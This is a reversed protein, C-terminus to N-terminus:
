GELRNMPCNQCRSDIEDSDENDQTYRCYDACMMEKIAQLDKKNIEIKKNNHSESYWKQWREYHSLELYDNLTSLEKETFREPNNMKAVFSNHTIGLVRHIDKLYYGQSVIRRKLESDRIAKVPHKKSWRSDKGNYGYEPVYSRNKLIHKKEKAYGEEKTEASDILRFSFHSEGYKIYDSVVNEASHKHNRMLILHSYFRKQPNQTVGIYRRQTVDNFIEYIYYM